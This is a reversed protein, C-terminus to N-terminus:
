RLVSVTRLQLPRGLAGEKKLNKLESVVGKWLALIQAAVNFRECYGKSGRASDKQVEIGACLLDLTDIPWKVVHRV